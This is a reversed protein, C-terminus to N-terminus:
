LLIEKDLLKLDFPACFIRMDYVTDLGYSRAGSTERIMSNHEAQKENLNDKLKQIFMTQVERKHEDM